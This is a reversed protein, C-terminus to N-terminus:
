AGPSYPTHIATEGNASHILFRNKPEISVMLTRADMPIIVAKDMWAFLQSLMKALLQPNPIREDHKKPVPYDGKWQEQFLEEAFGPTSFLSQLSSNAYCWNGPNRLGVLKRDKWKDGQPRPGPRKVDEPEERDRLGSHSQRAVIPAPRKPAPPLVSYTGDGTSAIGPPSSMSEKVKSPEPFKRFFSDVDTVVQFNEPKNTNLWREIEEPDQIPKPVYSPRRVPNYMSSKSRPSADLPVRAHSETTVLSSGGMVSTWADLGGELLRPKTAPFDYHALANYLGQVALDSEKDKKTGICMSSQDYFVVIDFQHRRVFNNQEPSPALVLSKEIDEGSIGYRMLVEPEVCITAQSMVHGNDFAERSRIDILLISVSKSGENMLRLLETVSITESEPITPKTRKASDNSEQDPQEMPAFLSPGATPSKIAPSNTSGSTVSRALSFRRSSSSPLEAAETSVTAGRAPKYIPGPVKPLGPLEHADNDLSQKRRRTEIVANRRGQDLTPPIMM